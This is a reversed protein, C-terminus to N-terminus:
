KKNQWSEREHRELTLIHHILDALDVKVFDVVFHHTKVMSLEKRREEEKEGKHTHTHLEFPSLHYLLFSSLLSLSLRTQQKCIVRVAAAAEISM